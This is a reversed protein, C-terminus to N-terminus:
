RLYAIGLRLRLRVGGAAGAGAGAAGTGAAAATGAGDSRSVNARRCKMAPPRTTSALMGARSASTQSAGMFELATATGATITSVM